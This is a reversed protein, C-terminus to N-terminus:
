RYAHEVDVKALMFGQGIQMILDVADDTSIYCM